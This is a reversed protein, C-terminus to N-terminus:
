QWWTSAQRISLRSNNHNPAIYIFNFNNSCQLALHHLESTHSPLRSVDWSCVVQIYQLFELVAEDACLSFTSPKIKCHRCRWTIKFVYLTFLMRKSSEKTNTYARCVRHYNERLRMFQHGHCRLAMCISFIYNSQQLGGECCVDCVAHQLLVPSVAM